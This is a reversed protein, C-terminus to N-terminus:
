NEGKWVMMLEEMTLGLIRSLSNLQRAEIEQGDYICQLESPSLRFTDCFRAFEEDTVDLEDQREKLLLAIAAIGQKPRAAKALYQQILENVTRPDGGTQAVLDSCVMQLAKRLKDDDNLTDLIRAAHLPKCFGITEGEHAIPVYLDHPDSTWSQPQNIKVM